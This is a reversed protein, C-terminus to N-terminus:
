RLTCDWGAVMLLNDQPSFNVSTVGDAPAPSVERGLAAAM